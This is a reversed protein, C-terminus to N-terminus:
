TDIRTLWLRIYTLWIGTNSNMAANFTKSFSSSNENSTFTKIFFNRFQILFIFFMSMNTKMWANIALKGDDQTMLGTRHACQKKIMSCLSTIWHAPIHWSNTNSCTHMSKRQWEASAHTNDEDTTWMGQTVRNTTQEHMEM